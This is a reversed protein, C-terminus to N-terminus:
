IGLSELSNKSSDEDFASAYLTMTESAILQTSNQYYLITLKFSNTLNANTTYIERDGQAYDSTLNYEVIFNGNKLRTPQAQGTMSVNFILNLDDFQIQAKKLNKTLQSIRMFAEEENQGLVLFSLTIDKFKDQQRIVTPQIDGDLWEESTEVRNSNLVRDYLYVGLTSSEIGNILM